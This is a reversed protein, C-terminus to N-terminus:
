IERITSITLINRSKKEETKRSNNGKRGQTLLKGSVSSTANEGSTVRKNVERGYSSLRQAEKMFFTDGHADYRRGINRDIIEWRSGSYVHDFHEPHFVYDAIHVMEHLVVNELAWMAM